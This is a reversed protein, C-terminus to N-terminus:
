VVLREGVRLDPCALRLYGAIDDLHVLVREGDIGAPAYVIYLARRTGGDIATRADPGRLISSVPAVGDSLMLDGEIMQTERGNMATFTETGACLEANLPFSLKDLDHGATLLANKLETMFMAEVLPQASPIARGKILSELQGLVHYSYGFGKYYRVYTDIPQSAKLKARSLGAYRARLEAELATRADELGSASAEGIEVTMAGILCRGETKNNVLTM